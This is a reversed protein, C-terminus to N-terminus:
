LHVGLLAAYADYFQKVPEFQIYILIIPAYVYKPWDPTGLGFRDYVWALPPPSLIYFLLACSIWIWWASGQAHGGDRQADAEESM